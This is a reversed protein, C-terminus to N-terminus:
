EKQKKHPKTKNRFPFRLVADSQKSSNYNALPSMYPVGFSHLSNLHVFLILMGVTLGYVGYIAALGIFVFRLIRIPIAMTYSPIVFSSIATIAVVIVMVPSVINAEVAAQGIVISGVISVAQGVTRPMRLGAERLIEFIVEMIIAEVFAPFPVGERQASLSLLLVTPIMDQHFTTLAVYIAPALMCIGLSIYRLIRIISSYIYSQYYDEASQIFDVFVAPALIVFPTGDVFIAIKGEMVGAAISDPRDSNYFIPFITFQKKETLSEELYEGELVRDVSMSKLRSILNLVMDQDAVGEMYMVSIDTKTKEGVKVNTLRVRTDKVRRRVMTTNTRLTETFSEQPGRIVPQAKSETISREEWGPLSIVLGEDIGDLLLLVGGSLIQDLADEFSQVLSAEGVDLISNKLFPLSMEDSDSYAFEHLPRIVNDQVKQMDVMGDLYFLAAHNRGITIERVVFDSSNGMFDCILDINRVIQKSFNPQLKM